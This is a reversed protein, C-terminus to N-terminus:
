FHISIINGIIASKIGAKSEGGFDYFSLTHTRPTRPKRSCTHNLLSLTSLKTYNRSAKRTTVSGDAKKFTIKFPTDTEQMQNWLKHAEIMAQNRTQYNSINKNAWTMVFKLRKIHSAKM